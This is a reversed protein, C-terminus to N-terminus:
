SFILPNQGTWNLYYLFVLLANGILSFVIVAFRLTFVHSWTNFNFYGKRKGRYGFTMVLLILTLLVQLGLGLGYWGGQRQAYWSGAAIVDILLAIFPM